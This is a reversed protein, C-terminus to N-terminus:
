RVYRYHSHHEASRYGHAKVTSHDQTIHIDATCPLNSCDVGNAMAGGVISVSSIVLAGVVLAIKALAPKKM